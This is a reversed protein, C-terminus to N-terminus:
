KKGEAGSAKSEEELTEISGSEEKVYFESLAKVLGEHLALTDDITWEPDVRSILIATARCMDRKANEIGVAELADAAAGEYDALYDPTPTTGLDELVKQPDMDHANAINGVLIMLDGVARDGKMGQQVLSKEGVTTYGRREIEIVGVDEDGVKIKVSIGRPQVLFPLKRAAM